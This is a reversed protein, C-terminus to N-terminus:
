LVSYYASWPFYSNSRGTSRACKIIIKPWILLTFRNQSLLTRINMCNASIDRSFLYYVRPALADSTCYVRLTFSSRYFTGRIDLAALSHNSVIVLVHSRSVLPPLSLVFHLIPSRCASFIPLSYLCLCLPKDGRVFSLARSETLRLSYRILPHEASPVAHSQACGAAAM